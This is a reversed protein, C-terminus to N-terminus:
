RQSLERYLAEHAAVVADWSWATEAHRRGKLSLEHRVSPSRLLTKLADEEDGPEYQILAHSPVAEGYGEDRRLLVPLGCAMAEQVALPFGEGQAAHMLIDASAYVAPMQSRPVIGLDRMDPARQNRIAGCTVLTFGERPIAVISALNKKASERAVVLVAPRGDPIGLRARIARRQEADLPRFGEVDVGNVMFLTRLRPFSTELMAQVRGNLALAVRASRLVQPAVTAWAARQLLHLVRSQYPVIGVHETVILPTGHTRVIWSALLSTAYLSGHAHLVNADKLEAMAARLYRGTPVPFPVGFRDLTRVVPLRWVVLGDEVSRGEFGAVASTLVIIEHRGAMRSALEHVVTEVGGTSPPYCHCFFAIRM